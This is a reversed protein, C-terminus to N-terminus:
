AKLRSVDDGIQPASPPPEMELIDIVLRLVRLADIRTYPLMAVIEAALHRECHGQDEREANLANQDGSMAPGM